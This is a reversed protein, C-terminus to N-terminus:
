NDLSDDIARRVANTFSFLTGAGETQSAQLLVSRLGESIELQVGQRRRGRNCINALSVGQLDPNAHPGTTFGASELNDHIADRLDEHRGGLYISQDNGRCGHVAVVLDCVSILALCEPEDFRASPIHLDGNHRPKIGEFCYFSYSDAAIAAAIESTGMEIKGGHPAIIAVAGLRHHIRIQFDVGVREACSLEQFNNYKDAM